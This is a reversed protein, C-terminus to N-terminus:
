SILLIRICVFIKQLCIKIYLCFVWFSVLAHTTPSGDKVFGQQESHSQHSDNDALENVCCGSTDLEICQIEGPTDENDNELSTIAIAFFPKNALSKNLVLM